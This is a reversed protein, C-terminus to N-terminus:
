HYDMGYSAGDRRKKGREIEVILVNEEYTPLYSRLYIEKNVKRRTLEERDSRKRRLYTFIITLIDRRGVTSVLERSGTARKGVAIHCFVSGEARDAMWICHYLEYM